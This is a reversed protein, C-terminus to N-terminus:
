SSGRRAAAVVVNTSSSSMVCRSARRRERIMICKTRYRRYKKPQGGISQRCSCKTDITWYMQASLVHTGHLSAAFPPGHEEVPSTGKGEKSHQRRVTFVFRNPSSQCVACAHPSQCRLSPLRISALSDEEYQVISCRNHTTIRRYSAQSARPHERIGLLGPAFGGFCAHM